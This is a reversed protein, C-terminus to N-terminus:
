FHMATSQIADSILLVHKASFEFFDIHIRQFPFTPKPWSTTTPKRSVPQRQQCSLCNGVFKEIDDDIMPWWVYSRAMMKMRVVGTHCEHISKLVSEKLEEPVVIRNIYYLCNDETSLNKSKM